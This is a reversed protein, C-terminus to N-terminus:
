METLLSVVEYQQDGSVGTWQVRIRVPLLRYDAARDDGDVVLDLNLDRPMGLRADVLDERLIGGQLPFLIEGVVGDPDGVQPTLGPVAFTPGPGVLGPPDDAPDGNCLVVVDGVPFRRLTELIDNAVQAAEFLERNQRNVNSVRILSGVIGGAALTFVTLSVILELLTFGRDARPARYKTNM